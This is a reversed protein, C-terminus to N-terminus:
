LIQISRGSDNEPAVGMMFLFGICLLTLSKVFVFDLIEGVVEMNDELGTM